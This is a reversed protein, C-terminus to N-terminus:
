LRHVIKANAQIIGTHFIFRPVFAFVGEIGYVPYYFPDGAAIYRAITLYSHQRPIGFHGTYDAVGHAGAAILRHRAAAHHM